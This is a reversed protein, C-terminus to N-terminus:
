VGGVLIAERRWDALVLARSISPNVILPYGAVVRPAYFRPETDFNGTLEFAEGTNWMQDRFIPGAGFYTGIATASEPYRALVTGDARLLTIAMGANATAGKYVAEFYAPDLGINLIGALSGDPWTIRRSVLILWEGGARTQVPKDILDATTPNDRLATFWERDSLDLDPSPFERSSVIAHGDPGVFTVQKIQPAGAIKERFMLHVARSDLRGSFDLVKLRQDIADLILDASQFTRATQEALVAGLNTLDHKTDAITTRQLHWIFAGALGAIAVMVLGCFLLLLRRPDLRGGPIRAVQTTAGALATASDPALEQM